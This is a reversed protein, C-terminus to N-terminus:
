TYALVFCRFRPCEGLSVQPVLLLSSILSSPPSTLSSVFASKFRGRGGQGLRHTVTPRCSVREVASTLIAPPQGIADLADKARQLKRMLTEEDQDAPMIGLTKQRRLDELEEQYSQRRLWARMKLEDDLWATWADQNLHAPCGKEKIAQARDKLGCLYDRIKERQHNRKDSLSTSIKKNLFADSMSAGNKFRAKLQQRVHHKQEETRERWTEHIKFNARLVQQLNSRLIEYSAPLAGGAANLALVPLHQRKEEKKEERRLRKREKAMAEQRLKKERASPSLGAQAREEDRKRKQAAAKKNVSEEVNGRVSDLMENLAPAMTAAIEPTCGHSQFFAKMKELYDSSPGAGGADPPGGGGSGGAGAM